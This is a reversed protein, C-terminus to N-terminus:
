GVLPVTFMLEAGQEGVSRAEIRGGHQEVIRRAIALGLGRQGAGDGVQVGRQFISQEAGDPIGPGQDRVRCCAGHESPALQVSVAGGKPSYRVANSVINSLVRSLALPDGEVELGPELDLTITIGAKRARPEELAVTRGVLVSFDVPQMHLSEAELMASAMDQIRRSALLIRQVRDQGSHGSPLAQLLEQALITISAAPSRLDHAIEAAEDIRRAARSLREVNSVAVAAYGALTRLLQVARAPELLSTRRSDVYIAGMTIEDHVMPVCMASGLDMTLVSIADRLDSRESIDAAIVEKGERLARYVVSTSPRGPDLGDRSTAAVVEMTGVAGILVFAREADLLQIASGAIRRLLGDTDKERVVDMALDLLQGLQAAEPENSPSVDLRALLQGARERLRLHGVEEAFVQARGAERTAADARGGLHLAEALWLRAQALEVGVGAQRLPELTEHVLGDLQTLEGTRVRALALQARLIGVLATRHGREAREIAGELLARADADKRRLALEARWRLASVELPDSPSLQLLEDGRQLWREAEVLDARDVFLAVLGLAARAAAPHDALQTARDYGLREAAEAEEVRCLERSCRALQGMVRLGLRQEGARELVLLAERWRRLADDRNGLVRLAAGLDYLLRARAVPPLGRERSLAREMAGAAETFRGAELLMKGLLGDLAARAPRAHGLQHPVPELVAIAPESAGGRQLARSWLARLVLWRDLRERDDEPAERDAVRRAARVAGPLDGVAFCLKAEVEVLLEPEDGPLSRCRAIWEQAGAAMDPSRAMVWAVTAAVLPAEPEILRGELWRRGFDLADEVKEARALAKVRPAVLSAHPTIQWLEHALTAGEAADRQSVAEIAAAGHVQIVGTDEAGLLLWGLRATAVEPLELQQGVLRRYISRPDTCARRLDELAEANRPLVQRHEVRALGAHILERVCMRGEEEDVEALHCLYEITCPSGTLALTSGLRRAVSGLGALPDDPVTTDQLARPLRAPVVVWRLVDWRLAQASVLALLRQITPGPVGGAVSWLQDALEDQGEVDGLVGRLLQLVQERKWPALTCTWEVWPPAERASVVVQVREDGALAAVCARSPADLLEHDDVLLHFGGPARRALALAAVQPRTEAPAWSPFSVPAGPLGPCCLAHEIVDWAHGGPTLRAFPMGRVRLATSLADLLRTRGSGSPGLIGLRGGEDLWRDLQKRVRPELVTISRSRRRLHLGDPVTLVAGLEELGRVVELASPRHVPDIALCSELLARLGPSGARARPQERGRRLLAQSRGHEAWPLRGHVLQWLVLGLTYVDAPPETLAGRVCEPAAHDLGGQWRDGALGQGVLLVRPERISEVLVRADSLLGHCLGEAHLAALGSAVQAAISVALPEPAAGSMMYASLPKGAVSERVLYPVPREGLGVLEVLAPHKLAVLRSIDLGRGARLLYLVGLAGAGDQALWSGEWEGTGGPRLLVWDGLRTGPRPEFPGM